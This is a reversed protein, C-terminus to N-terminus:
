IYKNLEQKSLEGKVFANWKQQTLNTKILIPYNDIYGIVINKYSYRNNDAESGVVCGIPKDSLKNRNINYRM